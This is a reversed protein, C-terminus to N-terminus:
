IVTDASWFNSPIAEGGRKEGEEKKRGSSRKWKLKKM